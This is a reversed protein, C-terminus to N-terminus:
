SAFPLLARLRTDRLWLGGWLAVGLYVGVLTHTFLPDAVRVHTAIAGGMWGTLLIAGLFATRPMLYLATSVLLTMGLTRVTVPDAPWGLLLSADIVPQAVFLKMSADVLLLASLVASLAWGAIITKRGAAPVYTAISSMATM